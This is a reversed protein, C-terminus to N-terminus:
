SALYPVRPKSEDSTIISTVVPTDVAQQLNGANALRLIGSGTSSEPNVDDSHLYASVEHACYARVPDNKKLM